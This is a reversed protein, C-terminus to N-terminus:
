ITEEKLKKLYNEVKQLYISEIITFLMMVSIALSLINPNYFYTYLIISFGYSIVQGFIMYINFLIQHERKYQHLDTINISNYVASCSESELVTGFSNMVIYYILLSIFSTDIVLFISSTFIIIAFYIYFKKDINKKNIMKLLLLSIISILAFLSNYSGVSLESGVKLFLLVPLLDELAGRFSIRRFFMCKYINTLHPYKKVKLLFTKLNVKNEDVYFSKIQLSMIIILLAEISLIFFLVNYSFTEIIFGSFFPTLIAALYNLINVDALFNSMTKHNNSGMIAMEYPISYCTVSLSYLIRFIYLYNCINEKLTILLITCIILQIFSSSYIFKANKKNLISAILISFLGDFIVGVLSYKLIVGVDNVIKIVYINFFLSFFVSIFKRFFSILSIYKRTDRDM